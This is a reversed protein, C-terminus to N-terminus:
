LLDSYNNIVKKLGKIYLDTLKKDKLSSGVPFKLANKYFHEAKPFDGTKYSFTNKCSGYVPFLKAPDQFLPLLNLPSTSGPIDSDRLGEAQLAKFFNEIPLNRLEKNNFQFVLGYWSPKINKDFFAPPLSVGKLNKINNIFTRAFQNKINLLKDYNKFIEYAVAIALPHARYKLGMGTTSYKSLPYSKPIEQKCRKNYHGLLLAKYYFEKNNCVLVGGEGGTINKQGQLSWAAMDGFSGVIKNKHKAGHAHSCDELLILKNRKCIKVIQDMQCPIGWMHTIIIAKTKPSIKRKIEQPDINGNDDCDCLIPKAGTFLLPSVTAFFTYAPCIVEDGEKLGIASFMSHIALTGSSCLLAYKKGHYKAFDDEFEKFIGSRNYISISQYLQGIVAKEIKKDIIPWVFHPPKQKIIKEGGLIALRVKNLKKVKKM